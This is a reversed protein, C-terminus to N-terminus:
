KAYKAVLDVNIVLVHHQRRLEHIIGYSGVVLAIRGKKFGVVELADGIHNGFGHGSISDYLPALENLRTQVAGDPAGPNAYWSRDGTAPHHHVRLRNPEILDTVALHILHPDVRM